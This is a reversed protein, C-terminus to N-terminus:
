VVIRVCNGAAAAAKNSFTLALFMGPTSGKGFLHGIRHILTGTKGTCPRANVLLPGGNWNAALRQSEDLDYPSGRARM